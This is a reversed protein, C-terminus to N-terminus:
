FVKISIILSCILIMSTFLIKKIVLIRNKCFLLWIGYISMLIPTLIFMPIIKLAYDGYILTSLLMSSLYALIVAGFITLTAHFLGFHVKKEYLFKKTKKLM